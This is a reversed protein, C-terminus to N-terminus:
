PFSSSFLASSAPSSIIEQSRGLCHCSCLDYQFGSLIIVDRINGKAEPAVQEFPSFVGDGSM